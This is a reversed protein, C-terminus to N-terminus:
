TREELHSSNSVEYSDVTMLSIYPICEIHQDENDENKDDEDDDAEEVLQKNKPKQTLEQEHKEQGERDQSINIANIVKRM